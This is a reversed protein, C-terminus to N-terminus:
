TGTTATARELYSLGQKSSQRDTKAKTRVLAEYDLKEVDQVSVGTDADPMVPNFQVLARSAGKAICQRRVKNANCKAFWEHSGRYVLKVVCDKTLSLKPRSGGEEFEYQLLDIDPVPCFKYKLKGSRIAIHCFRTPNDRDGFNALCLGGIYVVQAAALKQPKHIHGLFAPYKRNEFFAQPIGAEEVSGNAYRLGQVGFHGCVPLDPHASLAQLITENDTEPIHLIGGIVTPETVVRYQKPNAVLGVDEGVGYKGDFEHNGLDRVMNVGSELARRCYVAYAIRLRDPPNMANFLDGLDVITTTKSKSDQHCDIAADVVKSFMALKQHIRTTLGDPTPLGLPDSIRQHLDCCAFIDQDPTTVQEPM